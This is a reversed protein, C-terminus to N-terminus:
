ASTIREAIESLALKKLVWRMTRCYTCLAYKGFPVTSVAPLGASVTSSYAEARPPTECFAVDRASQVVGRKAATPRGSGSAVAWKDPRFTRDGMTTVGQGSAFMRCRRRPRQRPLARWVDALPTTSGAFEGCPM